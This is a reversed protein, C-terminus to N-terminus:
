LLRVQEILDKTALDPIEQMAACSFHGTAMYEYLAPLFVPAGDGGQVISAAILEGLMM